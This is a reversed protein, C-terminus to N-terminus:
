VSDGTLSDVLCGAQASAEDGKPPRPKERRRYHIMLIMPAAAAPLVVVASILVGIAAWRGALSPIVAPGVRAGLGQLPAM